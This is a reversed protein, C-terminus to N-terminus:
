MPKALYVPECHSIFYAFLINKRGVFILSTTPTSWGFPCRQGHIIENKPHHFGWPKKPPHFASSIGVNVGSTELQKTSETTSFWPKLYANSTVMKNISCLSSSFGWFLHLKRESPFDDIEIPWKGYSHYLNGKHIITM